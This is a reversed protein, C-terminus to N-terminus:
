APLDRFLDDMALAFGPLAPSVLTKGATLYGAPVFSRDELRFVELCRDAPDVLWYERVGNRAYLAKKVIRDREPHSPSVVEVLLDPAGYIWRRIMHLNAPSLWIVDPEVVDGSPLHVAMPAIVVEGGASRRVFEVLRIALSLVVKQHLFQPPPTGFLEGDILEARVEDDLAMYDDVTKRPRALQRAMLAM